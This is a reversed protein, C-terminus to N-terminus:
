KRILLFHPRLTTIYCVCSAVQHKVCVVITIVVCGQVALPKHVHTHTHMCVHAIPGNTYILLDARSFQSMM